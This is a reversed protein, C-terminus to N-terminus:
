EVEFDSLKKKLTESGLIEAEKVNPFDVKGAAVLELGFNTPGTETGGKKQENRGRKEERGEESKL